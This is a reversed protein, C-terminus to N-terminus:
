INTDEIDGEEWRWICPWDLSGSALMEELQEKESVVLVEMPNEDNNVLIGEKLKLSCDRGGVTM